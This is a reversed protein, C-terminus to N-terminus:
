QYLLAFREFATREYLPLRIRLLDGYALQLLAYLLQVSGCLVHRHQHSSTDDPLTIQRGRHWGAVVSSDACHLLTGPFAIGVLLDQVFHVPPEVPVGEEFSSLGTGFVVGEFLYPVQLAQAKLPM